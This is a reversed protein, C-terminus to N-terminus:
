EPISLILLQKKLLSQKREATLIFHRQLLGTKDLTKRLLVEVEPFFFFLGNRGIRTHKSPAAFCIKTAKDSEPLAQDFRVELLFGQLIRHPHNGYGPEKEFKLSFTYRQTYLCRTHTHTHTHTHTCAHVCVWTCTNRQFSASM